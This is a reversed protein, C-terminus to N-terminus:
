RKGLFMSVDIKNLNTILISTMVGIISILPLMRYPWVDYTTLGIMVPSILIIGAALALVPKCNPIKNRNMLLLFFVVIFILLTSQDDAFGKWMWSVFGMLFKELDIENLLFFGGTDRNQLPEYFFIVSFGIMAIVFYIILLKKKNDLWLYAIVAPFFLGTVAKAPISIVYALPSFYSRSTTTLYISTIFLLAWFSPYTVSTDYNYFIFSQLMVAITILGAIRKETLKLAWLYSILLLLVSSSLVLVKYNGFLEYSFVLLGMHIVHRFDTKIWDVDWVALRAMRRDFDYCEELGTCEPIFLETSSSIVYVGLIM